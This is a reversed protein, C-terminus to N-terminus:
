AGHVAEEVMTEEEDGAFAADALRGDGGREPQERGAAAQARDHGLEAALVPHLPAEVMAAVLELLELEGGRRNM